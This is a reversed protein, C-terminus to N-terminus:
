CHGKSKLLEDILEVNKAVTGQNARVIQEAVRGMQQLRTRDKLLGGLAVSMEEGDQVQIAGGQSVLMDAVEAFHDMHPGFVVAKGCSAPELPSHGGIPVLSGGVFVLAAQRYVKALEGFTDLLIVRPGRLVEGHQDLATRRVVAFGRARAMEELAEAREVHRPALVLVLGPAVDLLRRYCDLVAEEEIPHTSGAVFLEEHSQLGLEIPEASFGYPIQDFKLNGTRIVRSPDAGLAVLREMDRDTQMLSLSFLRVVRSFFPRLRMYGGFSDTSIRGNVLVCLIGRRAAVNLFNPWLETEVILILRPRIVGLVKRVVLPVDLPFYIHQALGELRRTVTDKGTETVTSVVVRQRPDRRKLEQVLSVVANVEGMSVAHIWITHGDACDEALHEPLWGLRQALGRRCRKKALLIGLIAPSALALAINYIGFMLSGLLDWTKRPEEILQDAEEGLQNLAIELEVRKAEIQEKDADKSVWIPRGWLFCARSFPM